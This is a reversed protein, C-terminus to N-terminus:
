RVLYTTGVKVTSRGWKTGTVRVSLKAGRDATRAKFASGTAKSIPKGNRLWQFKLKTGKAWGTQVAKLVTGAKVSPVAKVPAKPAGLVIPGSDKVQPPKVVQGIPGIGGGGGDWTQGGGTGGGSADAACDSAGGMSIVHYGVPCTFPTTEAASAPGAGAAAGGLAILGATAIISRTKRTM